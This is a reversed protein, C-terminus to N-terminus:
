LSYSVYIFITLFIQNFRSILKKKLTCFIKLFIRLLTIHPTHLIIYNNVDCILIICLYTRSNECRLVCHYLVLESRMDHNFDHNHVM